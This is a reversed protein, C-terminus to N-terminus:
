TLELPAQAFAGVQEANALATHVMLVGADVFVTQTTLLPENVLLVLAQSKTRSVSVFQMAAAFEVIGQLQSAVLLHVSAVDHEAMEM